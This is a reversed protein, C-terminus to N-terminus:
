KRRFLWIVTITLGILFLITYMFLQFPGGGFDSLPYPQHIIWMYRDYSGHIFWYLLIPSIMLFIGIILGTITFKRM